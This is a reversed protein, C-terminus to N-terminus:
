GCVYYLVSYIKLQLSFLKSKEPSFSLGESIAADIEVSSRAPYMAVIRSRVVHFQVCRALRLSTLIIIYIISLLEHLYQSTVQVLQEAHTHERTLPVM